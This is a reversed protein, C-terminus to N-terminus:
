FVLDRDLKNKLKDKIVKGYGICFNEYQVFRYSSPKEGEIHELDKLNLDYGALWRDKQETTLKVINTTAEKGYHIAFSTSPNGDKDEVLLGFRRYLNKNIFGLVEPTTLYLLGQKDVFNNKYGDKAKSFILKDKPIGYTKAIRTLIEAQANKKIKKPSEKIIPKQPPEISLPYRKTIKCLFFCESDWQDNRLHPYFRKSHNTISEHISVEEWAKLGKHHPINKPLTTEVIEVADGFSDLLHQVVLENEEPATTCTSYLLTGGPALMKFASEILKRQLKAAEFVKHESWMQDYFRPDRRGYGESSCPADLLVRDFEQGYFSSLAVGDTQTLIVNQCGMRTVNASLKKSRSSSIENAVIVGSNGMQESLYTTKSGPAACLDLVKDGPEPQLALVPLMSSLSQIYLSGTFHQLTKGIALDEKQQNIFFTGDLATPTFGPLESGPHTRATKPLAVTAWEEFESVENTPLIKSLRQIFADPLKTM